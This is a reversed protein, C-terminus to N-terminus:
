SKKALIMKATSTRMLSYSSTPSYPILGLERTIEPFTLGEERLEIIRHITEVLVKSDVFKVRNKRSKKM